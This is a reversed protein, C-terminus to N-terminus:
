GRALPTGIAGPQAQRLAAVLAQLRARQTSALGSQGVAAIWREAHQAPGQPSTSRGEMADKLARLKLQRRADQWEASAPLALATELHLLSEDVAAAALPGPTIPRQWRAALAQEWAAPLAGLAAWRRGLEDADATGDERAECLALRAALTDCQVQWRLRAAADLCALAAAHAERLRREIADAAARPVDGAERWGRDVEALTREIEAPATETTLGTLRALLAERRALNADLEADRAAFAAERQAFVADTAAKFRAWLAGELGRPLPAQRAHHQWEAQLDRVRQAADPPAAQSGVAPALAEARAIMQERAAAAERQVEHLPAEIREVAARLRVALAQRAAAPVTHEAPGLKRWAQQFRELERVLDRWDPAPVDGPVGPVGPLPLAELTGLLAERAALNDQRAAKLAAHQAALPQNAAHLATDFRQWLAPSAAAGLRDLEKWRQRLTHITEAHLKLNLKPADPAEPDAAALTQRGLAEAEAVLDDRARSGGWQQWGRLRGHEARVAQHRERWAAPLAAADLTSLTDDIAQLHQQLMGLQGEALAAEAQEVLAGLQERQGADPAPARAPRPTRAPAPPAEAAVPTNAQLWQAHRQSLVRALEPEAPVPLAPWTPAPAARADDGPPETTVAAAPPAELWALRAEVDQATQLLQALAGEPAAGATGDPRALRLAEIDQRLGAVDNASGHEAAAFLAQQWTPLCRKAEAVWRALRQQAEGRAQLAADLRLRSAAFAEHQAPELARAPLAAWARDLEVVHNIPVEATDLLAATREILLHAQARAEREEVAAELRQKAVRHVKRDHSRFAREAQKLAAETALAAVAALKTELPAQSQALQLLAADDGHAAQLRAPWDIGDGAATKRAAAAATPAPRAPPAPPPAEPRKKFLWNLM